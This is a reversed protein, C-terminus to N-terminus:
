LTKTKYLSDIQEFAEMYYFWEDTEMLVDLFYESNDKYIMDLMIEVAIYYQQTATLAVVQPEPRRCVAIGLIINLVISFILVQRM